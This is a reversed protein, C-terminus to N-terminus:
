RMTTRFCAATAPKAKRYLKTVQKRETIDEEVAIYLKKGNLQLASLHAATYFTSGDKRRNYFEGRWVGTDCIEQILEKFLAQNDARSRANLSSCHRGPLEGSEYGFMKDFAPNSYIIKVM